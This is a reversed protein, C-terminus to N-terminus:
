NLAWREVLTQKVNQLSRRSIPLLQGNKLKLNFGNIQVIYDINVFCSRDIFLFRNDDLLDFFEKIGRSDTIEGSVTTIILKRSIRNVSIIEKYPIRWCDNYRHLTVSKEDIYSLEKIASNMAEEIEKDLNLKIIYRLAKYKYGEVAMDEMSTLFLIVSTKSHARINDALEFGNMDPMSVDLIYIDAIINDQIEYVLMEPKTFKTIKFKEHHTLSYKELESKIHNIDNIDDDCIVINIM